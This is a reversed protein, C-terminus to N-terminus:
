GLTKGMKQQVQKKEHSQVVFELETNCSFREPYKKRMNRFYFHKWDEGEQRPLPTYNVLFEFDEEVLSKREKEPSSIQSAHKSTQLAKVTQLAKEDGGFERLYFERWLSQSTSLYRWLKCVKSIQLLDSTSCYSFIYVWIEDPLLFKAAKSSPM